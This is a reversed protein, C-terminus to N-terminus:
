WRWREALGSTWRLGGEGPNDSSGRTGTEQWREDEISMATLADSRAMSPPSLVRLWGNGGQGTRPGSSAMAADSASREPWSVCSVPPKTRSKSTANPCHCRAPSQTAVLEPVVAIWTANPASPTPAPSSTITGACVNMAEAVGTRWWPAVGTNASTSSFVNQREGSLTASRRVSRVFAIMATCRLPWGASM